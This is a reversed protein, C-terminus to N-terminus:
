AALNKEIATKWAEFGGRLPHAYRYGLQQLNRAVQVAGADQPCACITVIPYDKSINGLSSSIADYEIIHAHPIIGTENVLAQSRLDLM